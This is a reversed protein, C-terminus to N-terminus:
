GVSSWYIGNNDNEVNVYTERDLVICTLKRIRELLELKQEPTIRIPELPQGFDVAVLASTFPLGNIHLGPKFPLDLTQLWARLNDGAQGVREQAITQRPKTATKNRPTKTKETM